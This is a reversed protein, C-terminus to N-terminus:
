VKSKLIRINNQIKIISTKYSKIWKNLRESCKQPNSSNKCKSLSSSMSSIARKLGYIDANNKCIKKQVGSLDMCKSKKYKSREMNLVGAGIDVAKFVEFAENMISMASEVLQDRLIKYADEILKGEFENLKKYNVSESITRAVLLNDLALRYSKERIKEQVVKELNISKKSQFSEKLERKISKQGEQCSVLKKCNERAMRASQRSLKLLNKKNVSELIPDPLHDVLKMMEMMISMVAGKHYLYEESLSKDVKIDKLKRGFLVYDIAYFDELIRIKTEKNLKM